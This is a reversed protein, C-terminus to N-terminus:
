EGGHNWILDWVLSSLEYMENSSLGQGAAPDISSPVEHDKRLANMIHKLSQLFADRRACERLQWPVEEGPRAKSRPSREVTVAWTSAVEFRFTILLKIRTRKLMPAISLCRIHRLDPESALRLKALLYPRDTTIHFRKSAWYRRYAAAHAQKQETHLQRCVLLPNKTPPSTERSLTGARVNERINDCPIIRMDITSDPDAADFVHTFIIDRLEQTITLLTPPNAQPTSFSEQARTPSMHSASKTTQDEEPPQQTSFAPVGPSRTRSTDTM